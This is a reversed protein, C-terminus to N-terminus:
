GACHQGMECRRQRRDQVCRMFCCFVFLSRFHPPTAQLTGLVTFDAQPLLGAAAEERVAESAVRFVTDQATGQTGWANQGEIFRLRALQKVLRFLHAKADGESAPTEAM